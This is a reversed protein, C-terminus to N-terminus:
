RTVVDVIAYAALRHASAIGDVTHAAGPNVM